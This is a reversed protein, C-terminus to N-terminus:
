LDNQYTALNNIFTTDATILGIDDDVSDIYHESSLEDQPVSEAIEDGNLSLDVSIGETHQGSPSTSTTSMYTGGGIAIALAITPILVKWGILSSGYFSLVGKKTRSSTTTVQSEAYPSLQPPKRSTVTQAITATNIISGAKDMMASFAARSLSFDADTRAAKVASHLAEEICIDINNMTNIERM